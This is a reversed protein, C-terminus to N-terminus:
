ESVIQMHCQWKCQMRQDIWLQNAIWPIHREYPQTTWTSQLLVAKLQSSVVSCKTIKVNWLYIYAQFLQSITDNLLIVPIFTRGSHAIGSFCIYCFALLRPKTAKCPSIKVLFIIMSIGISTALCMVPNNKFSYYFWVQLTYRSNKWWFINDLFAMLFISCAFM